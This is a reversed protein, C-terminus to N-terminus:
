YIAICFESIYLDTIQDILNWKAIDLESQLMQQSTTVGINGHMRGNHNVNGDSNDTFSNSGSSESNIESSNNNTTTGAATDSVNNKDKNSFASSDFASVQNISESNVTNNSTQTGTINDTSSATSSETGSHTLYDSHTDTWTEIRDYNELPNYEIQLAEYWKSFTRYHKRGWLTIAESLFDPDSYLVEFEGARLLINNTVDDKVIGDPLVLGDFVSKNQNQLFKELGWLTIKAM